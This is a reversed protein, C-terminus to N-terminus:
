VLKSRSSGTHKRDRWPESRCLVVAFYFHRNQLAL